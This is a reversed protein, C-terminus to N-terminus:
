LCTRWKKRCEGGLLPWITSLFVSTSSVENASVGWCLFPVFICFALFGFFFIKKRTTYLGHSVLAFLMHSDAGRLVCVRVCLAQQYRRFFEEQWQLKKWKDSQMADVAELASAFRNYKEGKTLTCAAKCDDHFVCKTKNTCSSFNQFASLLRFSFDLIQACMCTAPPAICDLRTQNINMGLVAHQLIESKWEIQQCRTVM